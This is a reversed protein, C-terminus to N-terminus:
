TKRLGSSMNEIKTQTYESKLETKIFSYYKNYLKLSTKTEDEKKVYDCLDHLMGLLTDITTQSKEGTVKLSANDRWETKYYITNILVSNVNICAYCM